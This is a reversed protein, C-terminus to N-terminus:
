YVVPLRASNTGFAKLLAGTVSKWRSNPVIIIDNAMIPLDPAKGNMIDSINIKKEVREKGEERFIVGRQPAANFTTGQALSIAQRLTTGEKLSFEGPHQVEGAVFFVDTPPIIIIDGTQLYLSAEKIQGKNFKSITVSILEYEAKEAPDPAGTHDATPQPNPAAAEAPPAEKAEKREKIERYIFATSGYSDALGGAASILKILTPRGEIRYHGPARVAGQVFFIRSNPQVVSVFVQPNKLYRGRLGDALMTEVEDATKNLVNLKKLFPLNITVNGLASVRHQKCLQPADEVQIEIVDSPGIRYDEDPAVLVDNALNPTSPTQNKPKLQPQSREQRGYIAPSACLMLMALAAFLKGMVPRPEQLSHKM